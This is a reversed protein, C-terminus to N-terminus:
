RAAPTGSERYADSLLMKAIYQMQGVHLGLHSVAMVLAYALTVKEGQIVKQETVREAPMAEIVRCSQEVAEKLLRALEGKSLGAAASFEAPRDRTDPVGGVGGLIWQRLNGALHLVLNGM